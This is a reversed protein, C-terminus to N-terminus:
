LRILLRSSLWATHGAHLWLNEGSATAAPPYNAIGQRLEILLYGENGKVEVPSLPFHDFHLVLFSPAPHRLYRLHVPPDAFPM